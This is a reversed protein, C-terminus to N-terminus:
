AVKFEREDMQVSFTINAQLASFVKLLSEITVNKASRELKSIQSKQVGILKGLQEQTLKREKRVAKIMEGLLDMRLDFEYKDRGPTGIRGLDKDKMQELTMMKMKKKKKKTDM